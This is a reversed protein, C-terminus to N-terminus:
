LLAREDRGLLRFALYIATGSLVLLITSLSAATGYDGDNIAIYIKVPMTITGGVYLVLSSSLENVATVFSLMAGAVIGPLILPITVKMFAQVPSYGLSIAAEEMSPGVQRLAAASSRVAYPLRRIFVSLIIIAATGTMVLPPTNFAAIFAVGVVIGPMVYPVMLTADLLSSQATNRRAVLCGILTGIVVILLVSVGSFVLSNRVVDGLTAIIRSYSELGFGPQFVPGNTKRVSYIAAIIAPMAGGLAIFYVAAHAAVNAFGSLQIKEPRNILNSHYVNRRSMYRQIFVFIMSMLILVLSLTTAMGLNSGIEASYATYAETALVNFGRGLLRPTGFDAIAHILALLGGASLAPLVLPFSIKLVRQFPTLGLNEAAEELSRNINALAGSTLLYVYPYFKFAFVILIGWVGYIPPMFIGWSMLTQRVIGGSGFLVIWSYAGIFPPSVLALIAMMSVFRGGKIRLRAMCFAMVSGLLLAGALGGFGVILTNILANFYRTSTFLRQWNALTLAGSEDRFSSVLVLGLPILLLVILIAWAGVAVLTWFDPRWGIRRAPAAVASM